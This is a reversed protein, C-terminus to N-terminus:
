RWIDFLAAASSGLLVFGMAPMLRLVPSPDHVDAITMSNWRIIGALFCIAAFLILGSEAVQALGSPSDVRLGRVAIGFALAALGTRIWAAFTREVAMATRQRAWQTQRDASASTEHDMRWRRLDTTEWYNQLVADSSRQNDASRSPHHPAFENGLVSLGRSQVWTSM